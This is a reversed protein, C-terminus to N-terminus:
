QRQSRSISGLFTYIYIYTICVRVVVKVSKVTPVVRSVLVKWVVNSEQIINNTGRVIVIIVWAYIFFECYKYLILFRGYVHARMCTEPALRWESLSILVFSCLILADLKSICHWFHHCNCIYFHWASMNKFNNTYLSLRYM